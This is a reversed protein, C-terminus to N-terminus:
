WYCANEVTAAKQPMEEPLPRVWYENRVRNVYEKKEWRSGMIGFMLQLAGGLHIAQKGLSKAYAALLFGYAGCGILAVDFDTERMQKKMYELADYWIAFREDKEGAQTQVAKITKLEFEPLFGGPFVKERRAYQSQISKEFPHIVLVKKGKLCQVWADANGLPPEIDILRCLKAQKCFHKLYFMERDQWSAILDVKEMAEIMQELFPTTLKKDWPFFGANNCFHDMASDPLEKEFGMIRRVEHDVVGLEVSGIRGAMFPEGSAIREKYFEAVECSTLIKRNGVRNRKLAKKFLRRYLLRGAFDVLCFGYAVKENLSRIQQMDM